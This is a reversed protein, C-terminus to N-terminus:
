QSVGRWSRETEQGLSPSVAPGLMKPAEADGVIEEQNPDWRIKRGQRLSINALHCATAVRHGCSLWKKL